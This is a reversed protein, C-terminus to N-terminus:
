LVGALAEVLDLEADLRRGVGEVLVAAVFLGVYEGDLRIRHGRLMEASRKVIKATHVKAIPLRGGDDMRLDDMIGQLMAKAGEPDRVASPDKCREMLLTAIRAGDFEIGAKFAEQLNLLNAPSLTSVLGADMIVLTPQFGQRALRDLIPNWADKPARRLNDLTAEDIFIQGQELPKKSTGLLSGARQTLTQQTAPRALTVMINGPHLDAHCLNDKMVMQVFARVGMDAFKSDFVTPGKEIFMRLSLGRHFTEVLVREGVYPRLPRPFIVGEVGGSKGFNANFKDLNDAEVSLDLQLEMMHAFTALEEPISLYQAGPLYSILKGFAQILALDNSVQSEVNPHLVKVACETGLDPSTTPEPHSIPASPRLRARHVQAVAGVGVPVEDFEEFVDELKAIGLGQEVAKRTAHFSHPKVKTQLKALVECVEPPLIDVRSSAWQGLKIFFPGAVELQHVLM